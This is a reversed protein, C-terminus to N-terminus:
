LSIIGVRAINLSPKKEKYTYAILGSILNVMFNAKSRHRSHEIQYINKLQDNITEILSRGRLLLKDFLTILRPKMNKKHTTILEVGYKDLLLEAKEKSIYGKDGFLKGFLVSCMEDLVSRDDTNGSTCKVNLIEGTDSVILHLKFGYFWGTSSKGRGADDRFTKHRRIRKNTCVSLGTSDIYSIGTAKGYRSKMFTCLALLAKPMLEVFRNYSVIKPFFLRYHRVISKLYFHKFCRYGSRQFQVVITMIESLSLRCSRIRKKCSTELLFKNFEPEFTQCFDDIDCFIRTLM